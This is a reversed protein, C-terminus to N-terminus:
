KVSVACEWTGMIPLDQEAKAGGIFEDIVLSYEGPLLEECALEVVAKGDKVEVKQSSAVELIIEGESDIIKSDGIGLVDLYLYPAEDKKLLNAEVTLVGDELIANVEVEDTANEYVTGTVAGNWGFVDSFFGQLKESSAFATVAGLCLVVALTAALLAPKRYFKKVTKEQRENYCKEIIRKKIDEPMEIKRLSKIEKEM